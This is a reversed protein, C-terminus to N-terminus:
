KTQKLTKRVELEKRKGSDTACSFKITLSNTKIVKCDAQSTPLSLFFIDKGKDTRFITLMIEKKTLYLHFPSYCQSSSSSLSQLTYIGASPYYSLLFTMKACAWRPVRGM